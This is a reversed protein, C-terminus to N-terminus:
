RYRRGMSSQMNHLCRWYHQLFLYCYFDVANLVLVLGIYTPEGQFKGVVKRGEEKRIPKTVEIPKEAFM